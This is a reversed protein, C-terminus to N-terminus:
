VDNIVSYGDCLASETLCEEIFVSVYDIKQFIYKSIKVVLYNLSYKAKHTRHDIYSVYM